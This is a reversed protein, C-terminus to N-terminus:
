STETDVIRYAGNGQILNLEYEQILEAFQKETVISSQLVNMIYVLYPKFFTDFVVLPVEPENSEEVFARVQKLDM